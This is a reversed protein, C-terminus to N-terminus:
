KKGMDLLVRNLISIDMCDKPEKTPKVGTSNSILTFMNRLGSETLTPSYVKRVVRYTERAEDPGMRMYSQMAGIAADSDDRASYTARVIARVMKEVTNPNYKLYRTTAVLGTFSMEPLVDGFFALRKFGAQVVKLETPPSLPAAAVLGNELAAVKPAAGPINIYQVGKDPDIGNLKLFDHGMAHTTSGVSVAIKKEKLDEIRQIEPRAILSFPLMNTMQAVIKLDAGSWIASLAAGLPMIFHVDGAVLAQVGTRAGRMVILEVELGEKKFIGRTQALHAPFYQVDVSAAVVRVKTLQAEATPALSGLISLWVMRSFLHRAIKV